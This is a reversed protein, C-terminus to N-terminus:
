HEGIARVAGLDAPQTGRYLALLKGVVVELSASREIQAHAARGLERLRERDVSAAEALCKALAARDGPEFLWGNSGTVVM